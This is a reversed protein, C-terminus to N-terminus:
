MRRVEARCASFRKQLAKGVSSRCILFPKLLPIISNPGGVIYLLLLIVVDKKAKGTDEILHPNHEEINLLVAPKARRLIPELVDFPLSGCEGIEDVNEQLILICM